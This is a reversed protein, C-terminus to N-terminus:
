SYDNRPGCIDLDSDIALEILPEDYSLQSMEESLAYAQRSASPQVWPLVRLQFGACGSLRVRAM